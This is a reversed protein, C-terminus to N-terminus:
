ALDEPDDARKELQLIRVEFDGEEDEFPAIHLTYTGATRLTTSFAEPGRAPSDWEPGVRRGDEDTLTVAVDVSIQNVEGYLLFDDGAVFTFRATDGTALSGSRLEGRDIAVAQARIGLPLSVFALGLFLTRFSPKIM